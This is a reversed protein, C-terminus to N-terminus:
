KETDTCIERREKELLKQLTKITEELAETPDKVYVGEEYYPHFGYRLIQFYENWPKGAEECGKCGGDLCEDCKRDMIAFNVCDGSEFEVNLAGHIRRVQM